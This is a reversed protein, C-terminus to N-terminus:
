PFTIFGVSGFMGSISLRGAQAARVQAAASILHHRRLIKLDVPQNETLALYDLRPRTGGRMMRKLHTAHQWVLLDAAQVPRAKEKQVFAHSQYRYDGRLGADSFIWNMLRNAEAQSSHGAEFFYAIDGEFHSKMIWGYIATLCLWCCYTYASGFPHPPPFITNYEREDLAVAVGLSHEHVIKIMAKEVEVCESRAITPKFPPAYQACDIMHFYPLGYRDLVAKWERDLAQCAHKEFVYGGVCLVPSGDHSGSEDFYAEILAVADNEGPAL